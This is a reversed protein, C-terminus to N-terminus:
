CISIKSASTLPSLTKVSELSKTAKGSWIKGQTKLRYPRTPAVPLITRPTFYLITKKGKWDSTSVKNGADDLLQIDPLYDGVKIM